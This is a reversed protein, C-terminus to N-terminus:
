RLSVGEPEFAIPLALLARFQKYGVAGPVYAHLFLLPLGDPGPAVSPHGPGAWQPTSTVLPQGTKRYPGLPASAVAVGIGYASTSFDNGAYFLYFRGAHEAVWPGEVLHAERAQDNRLVVSREGVLRRGDPSLRQGLIPTDMAALIVDLATASATERAADRGRTLRRRFAAWHSTVSEILPQLTFFREMPACADAWPLLAAALRATQRDEASLFLKGIWTPERHLLTALRHPWVDNSDEKWLLYAEQGPRVLLHPDIVNGGLLPADDPLFPGQPRTSRAIGIAFAGSHRERACFCIRLGDPFRHMEPAWFDGVGTGTLAWRPTSGEPFVFGAPEWRDLAQSRLIPFADPADNSTVVAYYCAASADPAERLKLVAPDGYGYLIRAPLPRVLLPRLGASCSGPRPAQRDLPLRSGFDRALAAHFDLYAQHTADVLEYERRIRQRRRGPSTVTFRWGPGQAIVEFGSVPGAPTGRGRRAMPNTGLM